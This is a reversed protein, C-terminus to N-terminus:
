YLSESVCCNKCVSILCCVCLLSLAFGCFCLWVNGDPSDRLYVCAWGLGQAKPGKWYFSIFYHAESGFPSYSNVPSHTNELSLISLLFPPLTIIVHQLVISHSTGEFLEVGTMIRVISVASLNFCLHSCKHLKHFCQLLSQQGIKGWVSLLTCSFSATPWLNIWILADQFCKKKVNWPCVSHM